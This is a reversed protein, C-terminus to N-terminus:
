CKRSSCKFELGHLNTTNKLPQITKAKLHLPNKFTQSGQAQLFHLSQMPFLNIFQNIKWHRAQSVWAKTEPHFHNRHASLNWLWAREQNTIQTRLLSPLLKAMLLSSRSILHLWPLHLRALASGRQGRFNNRHTKHLSNPTLGQSCVGELSLGPSCAWPCSSFWWLRFSPSWCIWQVEPAPDSAARSCSCWLHSENHSSSCM